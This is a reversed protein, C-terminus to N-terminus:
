TLTELDKKYAKIQAQFHTPGFMNRDLWMEYINM